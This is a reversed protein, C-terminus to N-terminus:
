KVYYIMLAKITTSIFHSVIISMQCSLLCERVLGFTVFHECVQYSRIFSVVSFNHFLFIDLLFAFVKPGLKFPFDSILLVQNFHVFYLLAVISINNAAYYSNRVSTCILIFWIVGV